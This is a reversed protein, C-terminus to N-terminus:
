LISGNQLNQKQLVLQDNSNVMSHMSNILGVTVLCSRFKFCQSSLSIEISWDTLKLSVTFDFFFFENWKM